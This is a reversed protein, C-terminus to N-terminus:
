PTFEQVNTVRWGDAEKRVTLMFKRQSTDGDATVDALYVYNVTTDGDAHEEGFRYHVMPRVTTEDIVHGKTLEINQEVKARAVGATHELAKPLDIEVYYADLFLEARGRPTSPDAHCGALGLLASILLRNLLGNLGGARRTM